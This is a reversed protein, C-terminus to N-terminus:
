VCFFWDKKKLITILLLMVYIFDSKKPTWIKIQTIVNIPYLKNKEETKESLKLQAMRRQQRVNRSVITKQVSGMEDEM